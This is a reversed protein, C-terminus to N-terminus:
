LRSCWVNWVGAERRRRPPLLKWAAASRVSFYDLVAQELELTLALLCLKFAPQELCEYTLIGVVGDRQVVFFIRDQDDSFLVTAELAPTESSVFSDTRFPSMLEGIPPEEDVDFEVGSLLSESFEDIWGVLDTENDFVLAVSHSRAQSYRAVQNGPLDFQEDVDLPKELTDALDGVTLLNAVRDFLLTKQEAM